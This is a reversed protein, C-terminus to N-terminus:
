GWMRSTSTGTWCHWIHLVTSTGGDRRVPMHAVVASSVLLYLCDVPLWERLPLQAEVGLRLTLEVQNAAGSRGSSICERLVEGLDVPRGDQTFAELRPNWRCIFYVQMHILQRLVELAVYGLDFLILSGGQLLPLYDRYQHDSQKASQGLVARLNGTLIEWLVQWKIGAKPGDGGPAPYQSALRTPLAIQSSDLLYVSHFQTLVPIPLSVLYYHPSEPISIPQPGPM